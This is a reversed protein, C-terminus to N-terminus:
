PHPRVTHTKVARWTVRITIFKLAVATGLPLAALNEHGESHPPVLCHLM